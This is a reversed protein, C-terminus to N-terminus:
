IKATVAYSEKISQNAESNAVGIILLPPTKLTAVLEINTDRSKMYLRVLPQKESIYERNSFLRQLFRDVYQCVARM